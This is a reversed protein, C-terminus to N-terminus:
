NNYPVMITLYISGSHPVEFVVPNYPSPTEDITLYVKVQTGLMAGSCDAKLFVANENHIVVDYPSKSQYVKSSVFDNALNLDVHNFKLKEIQIGSGVDM